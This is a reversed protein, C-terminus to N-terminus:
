RDPRGTLDPAVRPAGAGRCSRFVSLPGNSFGLCMEGAVVRRAEPLKGFLVVYDYKRSVGSYDPVLDSYRFAYDPAYKSRLIVAGTKFTPTALCYPNSGGRYVNYTDEIGAFPQVYQNGGTNLDEIVPLMRAGYDVAPMGSLFIRYAEQAHLAIRTNLCASVALFGCVVAAVVRCSPRSFRLFGLTAVVAFPFTRSGVVFWDGIQVPLLLGAVVMAAALLLLRPKKRERYAQWAVWAALAVALGLFLVGAVRSLTWANYGLYAKIQGIPGHYYWKSSQRRDHILFHGALCVAPALALLDGWAVRWRDKRDFAFLVVAFCGAALGVIHFGDLVLLLLCIWASRAPGRPQGILVGLLLAFFPISGIFPLLGVFVPWSHALPLLLVGALAPQGARVALFRGALWLGAVFLALYAKAADFPEFVKELGALALEGLVTPRPKLDLDFHSAYGYKPQNYSTLVRAVMVHKAFDNGVPIRPLIFPAAAAVICLVPVLNWLLQV